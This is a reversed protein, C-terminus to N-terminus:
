KNEESALGKFIRALTTVTYEMPTVPIDAAELIPSVLFHTIEHIVVEELDEDNLGSCVELNFYITGKLYRFKSFCLGATSDGGSINDEPFGLHTDCYVVDFKWGYHTAMWEWAKVLKQLKALTQKKTM